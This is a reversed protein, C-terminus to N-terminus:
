RQLGAVISTFSAARALPLFCTRPLESAVQENIKASTAKGFRRGMKGFWVAGEDLIVAQHARIADEGM